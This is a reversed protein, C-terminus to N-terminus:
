TANFRQQGGGQWHWAVEELLSRGNDDVATLGKTAYDFRLRVRQNDEVTRIAYPAGGPLGHQRYVETMTGGAALAFAYRGAWPILAALEFVGGGRHWLRSYPCWTDGPVGGLMRQLEGVVVLPQPVRQADLTEDPGSYEPRAHWEALWTPDPDAWARRIAGEQGFGHPCAPSPHNAHYHWVTEVAGAANRAEVPAQGLLRRAPMQFFAVPDQLRLWRQAYMLFHDRDAPAQHAFWAIDDWGWRGAAARQDLDDWQAPDLSVGGWNDLEILYPLHHCSWGSPAVGGMSEGKMHLIIRTPHDRWPRASIPRSHFDFLLRGGVAIGHTHADLLVLHRRGHARAYRRIREVLRAFIRYGRDKAAYLHPQGLHIAEYGADIYRRARYYLWRETEPYTLDPVQCGAGFEGWHLVAAFDPGFMDEYRFTRHAVPEGFEEFVWAPVPIADIPPYVAEFVGAQCIVDPDLDHVRRTFAAAQQFHPEDDPLTEWVYAARGLFRAGIAHLMRLDDDPCDTGLANNYTVARALYACLTPLSIAGDFHLLPTERDQMM